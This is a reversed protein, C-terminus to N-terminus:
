VSSRCPAPAEPSRVGALRACAAPSSATPRTPSSTNRGPSGRPMSVAIVYEGKV